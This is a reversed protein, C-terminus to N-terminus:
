RHRTAPRVLREWLVDVILAGAIVVIGLDILATNPEPQTEAWESTMVICETSVTCASM